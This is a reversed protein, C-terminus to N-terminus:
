SRKKAFLNVAKEVLKYKISPHMAEIHLLFLTNNHKNIEILELDEKIATAQIKTFRMYKVKERDFVKRIGQYGLKPFAQKFNTAPVLLRSPSEGSADVKKHDKILIKPTPIAKSNITKTLFALEGKDLHTTISDLLELAEKEIDILKERKNKKGTKALHAHMKKVYLNLDMATFSGTKDTPVIVKNM